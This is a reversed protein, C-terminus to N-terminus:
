APSLSVIYDLVSKFKQDKQRLRGFASIEPRCLWVQGLIKLTILVMRTKKVNLSNQEESQGKANV